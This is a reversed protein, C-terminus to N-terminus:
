CVEPAKSMKTDFADFHYLAGLYRQLVAAPEKYQISKELDRWISDTDRPSALLLMEDVYVVTATGTKAHIYVDGNGPIAPWGLIKM